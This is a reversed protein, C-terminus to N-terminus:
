HPTCESPTDTVVACPLFLADSIKERSISAEWRVVLLGFVINMVATSMVNMAMTSGAVM